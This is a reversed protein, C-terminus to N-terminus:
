QQETEKRKAEAFLLRFGTILKDAEAESEAQCNINVKQGKGKVELIFAKMADRPDINDRLVKTGAFHKM